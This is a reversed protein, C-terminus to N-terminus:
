VLGKDIALREPLEVTYIGEFGSKRVKIKSLPLWAAEEKRGTHVLVAADTRHAIEVDIEVMHRSM